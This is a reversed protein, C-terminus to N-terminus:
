NGSGAAGVRLARILPAAAGRGGERGLRARRARPSCARNQRAGHEGGSRARPQAGPRRPRLPRARPNQLGAPVGLLPGPSAAAGNERGEKRTAETTRTDTPTDRDGM